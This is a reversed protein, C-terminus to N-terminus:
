TSILCVLWGSGSNRRISANRGLPCARMIGTAFWFISARLVPRRSRVIFPAPCSAPDIVALVGAFLPRADARATLRSIGRRVREHSGGGLHDRRFRDHVERPGDISISVGVDYEVFIDIVEDALLIGNTQVHIGCPAPLASRLQGCLDRLRSAGILLPEGGHLVVSFPHQQRSYLSALQRVAARQVADSMRKPQSRWADDGMRYVYCYGCDLNCRSAVKLLVTDIATSVHQRSHPPDNAATLCTSEM